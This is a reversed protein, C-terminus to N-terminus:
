VTIVELASLNPARRVRPAPLKLSDRLQRELATTEELSSARAHAAAWAAATAADEAERRKSVQEEIWKNREALLVRSPWHHFREQFKFCAADPKHGREYGERYYGRWAQVRESDNEDKEDDRLPVKWSKPARVSFLKFYETRVWSPKRKGRETCLRDWAARKEARTVDHLEVLEGAEEEPEERDAVEGFVHGCPEGSALTEPCVRTQAPLLAFCRPCTKISPAGPRKRKPVDLSYDDEFLPGEHETIVQARDLLLAFPKEPHPRLIRGMMQKALGRSKTPRCLMAVAVIPMDWGECLVGYNSVLTTEGTELRALIADREAQPTEGDLHEAKVGAARFADVCNRSHQVSAAFLVTRLREAKEGWEKVADGILRPRDAAAAVDDQNWDHGSIRAESMDPLSEPRAGFMRPAVLYGAEALQRATMVPPVLDDFLEGLGKNDARYPTATLGLIVADPYAAVLARYSPSLARHAEDIIILDFDGLSKGRATDISAVQIPAQPRRGCFLGWLEADIQPDTAGAARRSAIVDLPSDGFLSGGRKAPTGAMVIGVSEAPLGARLLKTASQRILERRHALFLVRSHKRYGSDVIASAIVTKGGGTPLVLLPRRRGAGIRQRVLRVTEVQYDRLPIM